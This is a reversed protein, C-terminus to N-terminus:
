RGEEQIIATGYSKELTILHFSAFFCSIETKIGDCINGQISVKCKFRCFYPLLEVFESWNVTKRGPSITLHMMAAMVRMSNQTSYLTPAFNLLDNQVRSKKPFDINKKENKRLFFFCKASRGVM